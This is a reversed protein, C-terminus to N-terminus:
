HVDAQLTALRERIEDATVEGMITDVVKGDPGIIFTAPLYPPKKMPLVTSPLAVIVPINIDFKEVMDVLEQETKIDYNIAFLTTNEPLNNGFYNLEPMERLCPACWPAFYNIITWQGTMEHWAYTDGSLTRFDYKATQSTGNLVQYTAIGAVGAAIILVAIGIQKLRTNM